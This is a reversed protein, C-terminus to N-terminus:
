RRSHLMVPRANDPQVPRTNAGMAQRFRAVLAAEVEVPEAMVYWDVGETCPPATLSGPYTFYSREPPLLFLPNTAVQRGLYSEGPRPLSDAIRSLTSNPRQGAKLLVAVVATRGAADRHILQMEMDAQAGQIRHEAPTHFQYRQLAYERGKLLLFSGPAADVRIVHGDNAVTLTDSRYHFSLPLFEARKAYRLDIPSQAKGDKCASFDPSLDGWREPGLDGTYGWPQAVPKARVTPWQFAQAHLTAGLTLALGLSVRAALGGLRGARTGGAAGMSANNM